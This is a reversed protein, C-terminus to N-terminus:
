FNLYVCSHFSLGLMETFWGGDQMCLQGLVIHHYLEM